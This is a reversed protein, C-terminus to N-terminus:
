HLQSRSWLCGTSQIRITLIVQTFRHIWGWCVPPDTQANNVMNVTCICYVTRHCSWATKPRIFERGSRSDHCCCSPLFCRVHWWPSPNWLPCRHSIHGACVTQVQSGTSHTTQGQLDLLLKIPHFITLPQHTNTSWTYKEYKSVLCVFNQIFGVLLAKFGQHSTGFDSKRSDYLDVVFRM